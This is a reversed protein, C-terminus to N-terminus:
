TVGLTQSMVHWLETFISQVLVCGLLHTFGIQATLSILIFVRSVLFLSAHRVWRLSCIVSIYLILLILIFLLILRRECQPFRVQLQQKLPKKLESFLKLYVVFVSRKVVPPFHSSAMAITTYPFFFCKQMCIAVNGDCETKNVRQAKNSLSIKNEDPPYNPIIPEVSANQHSKFFVSKRQSLWYHM